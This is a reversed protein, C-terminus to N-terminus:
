IECGWDVIQLRLDLIWGRGRTEGNESKECTEGIEKVGGVHSPLNGM